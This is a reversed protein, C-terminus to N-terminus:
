QRSKKRKKKRSKKKTEQWKIPKKKAEKVKKRVLNRREASEPFNDAVEKIEKDKKALKASFVRDLFTIIDGYKDTIDATDKKLDKVNRFDDEYYRAREIVEQIDCKKIASAARQKEELSIKSIEPM